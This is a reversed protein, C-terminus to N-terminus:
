RFSLERWPESLCNYLGSGIQCMLTQLLLSYLQHMEALIRDALCLQVARVGVSRSAATSPGGRGEETEASFVTTGAIVATNMM